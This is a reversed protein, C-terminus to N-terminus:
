PVFVSSCSGAACMEWREVDHAQWQMAGTAATVGVTVGARASNRGVAWDLRVPAILAAEAAGDVWVTLTGTGADAMGAAVLEGLRETSELRGCAGIAVCRVPHLIDPDFVPAYVVRLVHAEGDGLDPLEATAALDGAHDPSAAAAPGGALVAAHNDYLDDLDPDYWTDFEAVVAGALGAYGLGRGGTGISLLPSAQSDQVVLALGHGGRQLCSAGASGVVPCATAGGATMRVTLTVEWGASPDVAARVWAAGVRSTGAQTLRVAPACGPDTGDHCYIEADGVLSLNALASALLQGDAGRPLPALAAALLAVVLLAPRAM